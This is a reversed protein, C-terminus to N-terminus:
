RKLELKKRVDFYNLYDDIRNQLATENMDLLKKEPFKLFFQKPMISREKKPNKLYNLLQTKINSNTSYKLIYRRYILESPIKQEQHCTLCSNQLRPTPEEGSSLHSLIPLVILLKKVM